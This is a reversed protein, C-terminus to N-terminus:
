FTFDKTSLSVGIFLGFGDGTVNWEPNLGGTSFAGRDDQSRFLTQELDWYRPDYSYIMM